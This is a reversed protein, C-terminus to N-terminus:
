WLKGRAAVSWEEINDGDLVTVRDFLNVVPCIHNPVIVVRDGINPTEEPPFAVVAHEESMRVVTGLGDPTSGFTAPPDAVLLRDSSLAKTGADVVVEGRRPESVVTTVLAAAVDELSASGLALQTCDNFVYTGPRVETVGPVEVDFRFTGASGVSVTDAHLNRAKLTRATDVVARCAEHTMSRMEDVSRAQGYVHGEHTLLGALAVGTLDAIRESLQIADDGPAVGVRALGTDIEVLVRLQTTSRGVADSIAKAVDFSDLSVTVSARRALALLRELKSRGVIPYGVLIDTAGAAAMVEAEGLKAVQIGVAGADLQLRTLQPMKHTKTHPRLNVGAAQAVGAARNINRRVVELDIVLQPTDIPLDLFAMLHRGNMVSLDLDRM